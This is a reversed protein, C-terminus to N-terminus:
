AGYVEYADLRRRLALYEERSLKRGAEALVRRAERAGDWLLDIVMMAMSKAPNVAALRHDLVVYDSTHPTSQTGGSRPHVTPMIFGLDGVDTSGTVHRPTGMRDRGVIAACSEYALAVLNPDSENPLYGSITTIEVTSGMAQAGARLSRDVKASADLIAEITKGRVLMEVRVDAPIASVADGGRTIIPHVRIGDEDRFTERQHEIASLALTAAKLANVGLHPAGGAHAARGVFRAQKVVCANHTDGVTALSGDARAPTHTITVMDIDDFEGLRILEPKGVIFEVKRQQRLGLRWDVEICEEAPVAFLVV